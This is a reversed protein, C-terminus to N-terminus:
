FGLDNQEELIKGCKKEIKGKWTKLIQKGKDECKNCQQYIEGTTLQLEAKDCDTKATLGGETNKCLRECNKLCQKLEEERRKEEAEEAAQKEGLEKTASRCEQTLNAHDQLKSAVEARTSEPTGRKNASCLKSAKDHLTKVKQERQRCFAVQQSLGEATVLALYASKAEKRYDGAATECAARNREEEVKVCETEVWDDKNQWENKTKSGGRRCAGSVSEVVAKAGDCDDPDKIRDAISGLSDRCERANGRRIEEDYEAKLVDCRQKVQGRKESWLQKVQPFKKCKRTHCGVYVAGGVAMGSMCATSWRSQSEVSKWKKTLTDQCDKLCKCLDADGGATMDCYKAALNVTKGFDKKKKRKRKKKAVAAKDLGPLKGLSDGGSPDEELQEEDVLDAGESDVVDAVPDELRPRGDKEDPSSGLEMVCYVTVLALIVALIIWETRGLKSAVTGIIGARKSGGRADPMDEQPRIVPIGGSTTTSVTNPPPSQPVMVEVKASEPPPVPKSFTPRQPIVPRPKGDVPQGPASPPVVPPSPRVGLGTAAPVVGSAQILLASRDDPSGDIRAQEVLKLPVGKPSSSSSVLRLIRQDDLGEHVGDTCILVRDKPQLTVRTQEPKIVQGVGLVMTPLFADPTTPVETAAPDMRYTDGVKTHDLTKKVVKGDRVVYLRCDGVHAAYLSNGAVAAVLASLGVRRPFFPVLEKNSHRLALDLLGPYDLKHGREKGAHLFVKVLIEFVKDGAVKGVDAGQSDTMGFLTGAAGLGFDTANDGMYPSAEGKEAARWYLIKIPSETKM